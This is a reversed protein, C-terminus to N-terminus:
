MFGDIPMRGGNAVGEADWQVMEVAGDGMGAKRRCGWPGGHHCNGCGCGCGCRIADCRMNHEGILTLFNAVGQGVLTFFDCEFIGEWFLAFFEPVELTTCPKM